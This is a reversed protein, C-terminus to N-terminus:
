PVLGELPITTVVSTGGGADTLWEATGGIEAARERIASVGVGAVFPDPLGRGDDSVVVSVSVASVDFLVSARVGGSHRVVNHIAETVIRYLAVEVAAPLSPLVDPSVSVQVTGLSAPHNRIAAVLGLEDLLPPRLGYVLRRIEATTQNMQDGVEALIEAARSPQTALLRQAAALQLRVSALTPGLGDHLDRRIRRREEERATVLATRSATVEESARVGYMGIALQQALDGLLSLEDASLPVGPRRAAVLVRGLPQDAYALPIVHVERDTPPTGIVSATEDGDIVEVYSVGVTRALIAAISTRDPELLPAQLQRGLRTVVAFADDHHTFVVDEVGRRVWRRVPEVTAVILVLALLYAWWAPRGGTAAVAASLVLVAVTAAWCLVLSWTLAVALARGGRRAAPSVEPAPRRVRVLSVMGM